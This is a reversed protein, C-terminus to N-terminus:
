NGWTGNPEFGTRSIVGLGDKLIWEDVGINICGQCVHYKMSDALAWGEANGSSVGYTRAGDPDMPLFPLEDGSPTRYFYSRAKSNYRVKLTTNQFPGLKGPYGSVVWYTYGDKIVRDIVEIEFSSNVISSTLNGEFEYVWKNGIAMPWFPSEPFTADGRASIFAILM